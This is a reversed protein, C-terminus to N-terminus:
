ADGEPQNVTVLRRFTSASNVCLSLKKMLMPVIILVSADGNACSTKARACLLGISMWLGIYWRSRSDRSYSSFAKICATSYTM